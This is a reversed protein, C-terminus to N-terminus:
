EETTMKKKKMKRLVILVTLVVALTCVGILGYFLMPNIIPARTAGEVPLARPAEGERERQESTPAMPETASPATAALPAETQVAAIPKLELTYQRLETLPSAPSLGADKVQIYITANRDLPSTQFSLTAGPQPAQTQSLLEGGEGLLDVSFQTSPYAPVLIVGIGEHARAYFKYTDIADQPSLGNEYKAYTVPFATALDSGADRHPGGDAPLVPTEATPPLPATELGSPLAPQAPLTPTPVTQEVVAPPATPTPVPFPAPAPPPVPMPAPAAAPAAPPPTVTTTTTTTEVTVAPEAPAPAPQAEAPPATEQKPKPKIIKPEGISLDIPVDNDDYTPSEQAWSITHFLVLGGCSLTILIKKFM